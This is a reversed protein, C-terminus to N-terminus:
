KKKPTCLNLDIALLVIQSFTGQCFKKQVKLCVGFNKRRVLKKVDSFWSKNYLATPKGGVKTLKGGVRARRFNKNDRV